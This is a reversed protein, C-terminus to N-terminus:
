LNAALFLHGNVGDFRLRSCGAAEFLETLRQKTLLHIHEPNNDEKSPVTVIVHKRAIRVATKVAKEVEPIHELVELMTVIDQSKDPVLQACIDGCLVSLREMGGRRITELFEARERLVDVATVSVWSFQELFPILFVGRGSGVDLLSEFQVSKLFGLVRRVRPLEEHTRKFRYMKLGEEVGDLFLKELEEGGLETLPKKYRESLLGQETRRETGRVYAAACALCYNMQIESLREEM